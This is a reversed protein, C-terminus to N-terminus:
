ISLLLYQLIDIPYIALSVNMTFLEASGAKICCRNTKAGCVEPCDAGDHRREAGKKSGLVRHPCPDFRRRTIATLMPFLQHRSNTTTTHFRGATVIYSAVTFATQVAVQIDTGRHGVYVRVWAIGFVLSAVPPVAVIVSIAGVDYTRQFELASNRSITRITEAVAVTHAGLQANEFINVLRGKYRGLQLTGLRSGLM